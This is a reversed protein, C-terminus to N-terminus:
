RHGHDKRRIQRIHGYWRARLQREGVRDPVLDRSPPRDWSSTDTRNLHRGATVRSWALLRQRVRRDSSLTIVPRSNVDSDTVSPWGSLIASWILSVTSSARRPSSGLLRTATSVRTVVPRTTMAPSTVVSAYTGTASSARLFITSM